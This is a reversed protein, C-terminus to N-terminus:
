VAAKGVWAGEPQRGGSLRASLRHGIAIAPKEIYRHLVETSVFTLLIAPVAWHPNWATTPVHLTALLETVARYCVTHSLYLGYSRSGVYCLFDCCLNRGLVYGRDFSAVFILATSVLAILGTTPYHKSIAAFGLLLALAAFTTAWGLHFGSPELSRYIDKRLHVALALLAGMFLGDCRFGWLIASPPRVLLFQVAVGVILIGVAIRRPLLLALPLLLYFQEELSLSWYVGFIGQTLGPYSEIVAAYVNYFQLVAFLADRANVDFTGFFGKANFTLSAVLGITLWALALPQIRFIRRIWFSRLNRRIGGRDLISKTIVFGSIAFFIDVGFWLNATIDTFWGISPTTWFWGLHAFMVLLVAIGRLAEIDAIKGLPKTDTPM